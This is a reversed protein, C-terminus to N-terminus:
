VSQVAGKVSSSAAASSRAVPLAVVISGLIMIITGYWLWVQLPNIFVTMSAKTGTEDVGAFVLYVDERASMRLAVESTSEKNKPYFRREPVLVELVKDSGLERLAVHAQIAEYNKNREEHFEQLELSFRGVTFRENPALTFTKETKFAMSSTIAVTMVLVGFHIIHAGYKVRHRRFLSAVTTPNWAASKTVAAQMRLGRQLESLITMLVFFAISYALLPYFEVIGAWVLVLAVGFAGLFPAAFTQVLNAASSRKWAILPGVGMLFVLALFLPVNVDNFFPIGVTRKVGTFAESFVPFMVGWLVAFCISLLVLNNLLFVAERSFLSEIAREPRLQERRLFLLLVAVAAILGLYVLFLWGIDTSAFAHVSQVVGSRTLFTGFVTLAYTLVILSVNWIKLMGKREQVMVSHLFATASLWPLFSANEVPDWAWFGGWGLELYAWHGGLVIGATLFTWAILTWRRTLRIWDNTTQGSALAAMCFAYPVALGTFGLYLMPPHIAMYENQLLPNLGNGDPMIMPTKLYRFPNTLFLTITSFFLTSSNLFSFLWPMLAHPYRRSALAVFASFLAVFFCWLLMSGDMGGWIATIKYISPMDRNSYQWVYQVAYDNNVFGYGLGWLSAFLAVSVFITLRRLSEVRSQAAASSGVTRLGLAAGGLTGVLAFIWALCLAFHGFEVV